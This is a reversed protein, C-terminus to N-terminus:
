FGRQRFPSQYPIRTVPSRHGGFLFDRQDTSGGGANVALDLLGHLQQAAYSRQDVVPAATTVNGTDLGVGDIWRMSYDYANAQARVSALAAMGLAIVVDIKHSQKEKDIKWGRKGEVAISRMVANGIEEDRYLLLNRGKILTHLNEAMATLNPLTQPYEQMTVGQRTLSQAVAAMQFPDYLVAQVSFRRHWDLVTQEVATSFDIPAESTPVFIRHDVLRVRQNVQDWSVCVLATSDHKVSADIGICCILAPDAVCHSLLPDVCADYLEMDIFSTESQVFRNQIMRMYQPLRLSRKMDTLWKENQWPAVPLHHWAMLMGDGAYLSPGVQQQKIGREYLEELLEGEGSFGAYTVTLRCAIQKTPPPVLEDFLRRARESSFAWLEDFVAINQNAGAASAYDAPIATITAGDLVIKNATINSASHLLPSAEVVRRIMEFVRARSQEYDNAALIAEGYRFSYLVLLTIVFIGALTTKGSKKPCSYILESYLLRGDDGTKFAHQLFDREAPLLTFPRGTEPDHLVAEIFSIPDQRWRKFSQADFRDTM